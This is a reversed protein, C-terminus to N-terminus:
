VGRASIPVGLLVHLVLSHLRPCPCADQGDSLVLPLIKGIGCSADDKSWEYPRLLMASNGYLRGVSHAIDHSRLVLCAFQHSWVWAQSHQRLRKPDLFYCVAM